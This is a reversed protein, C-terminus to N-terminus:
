CSDTKWNIKEGNEKFYEFGAKLVREEKKEEQDVSKM